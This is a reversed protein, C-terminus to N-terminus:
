EYWLDEGSTTTLHDPFAWDGCEVAQANAVTVWFPFWISECM